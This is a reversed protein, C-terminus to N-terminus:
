VHQVDFFQKIGEVDNTILAKIVQPFQQKLNPAHFHMDLEQYYDQAYDLLQEALNHIAEDESKGAEVFWFQDMTAVYEGAERNHEIKVDCRVDNLMASLYEFNMAMFVDRENRQVFKPSKHIVSDMFQAWNKRVDSSKDAILMFDM